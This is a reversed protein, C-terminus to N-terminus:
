GRNTSTVTFSLSSSANRLPNSTNTRITFFTLLQIILPKVLSQGLTTTDSSLADLLRPSQDVDMEDDTDVVIIEKSEAQLTARRKRRKEAAFWNVPALTKDKQLVFPKFTKEFDSVIKSPGAMASAQAGSSQVSSKAPKSSFFKAM